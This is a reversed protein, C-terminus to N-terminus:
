INCTTKREDKDANTNYGVRALTSRRERRAMPAGPGYGEGLWVAEPLHGIKM